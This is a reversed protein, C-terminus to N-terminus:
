GCYHILCEVDHTAIEYETHWDQFRNDAAVSQPDDANQRAVQPGTKPNHKWWATIHVDLVAFSEVNTLKM